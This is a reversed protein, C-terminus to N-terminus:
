ECVFAGLWAAFRIKVQLQNFDRLAARICNNSGNFKIVRLLSSRCYLCAGIGTGQIRQAPM